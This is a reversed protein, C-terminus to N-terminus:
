VFFNSFFFFLLRYCFFNLPFFSPFSFFHMESSDETDQTKGTAALNKLGFFTKCKKKSENCLTKGTM